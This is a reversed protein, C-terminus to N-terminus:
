CFLGASCRDRGEKDRLLSTFLNAVGHGVKGVTKGQRQQRAQIARYWVDEAIIAPYYTKRTELEKGLKKPTYEGIVASNQLIESRM